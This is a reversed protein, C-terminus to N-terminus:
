QVDWTQDDVSGGNGAYVNWYMFIVIQSASKKKAPSDHLGNHPSLFEWYELIFAFFAPIKQRNYNKCNKTTEHLNLITM